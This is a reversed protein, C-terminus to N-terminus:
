LKYLDIDVEANIKNAFGIFKKSFYFSPIGKELYSIISIEIKHKKSLQALKNISDEFIDIIKDLLLEVHIINNASVKYVWINDKYKITGRNTILEGKKYVATPEINLINKINKLCGFIKLEVMIENKM